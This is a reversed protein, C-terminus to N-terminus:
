KICDFDGTSTHAGMSRWMVEDHNSGEYGEAHALLFDRFVGWFGAHM